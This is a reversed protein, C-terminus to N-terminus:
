SRLENRHRLPRVPDAVESTREPPRAPDGVPTRMDLLRELEVVRTRAEDRERRLATLEESARIFCEGLHRMAAHLEQPLSKESM